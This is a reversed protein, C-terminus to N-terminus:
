GTSNAVDVAREPRRNITVATANRGIFTAVHKMAHNAAERTLSSLTRRADRHNPVAHTQTSMPLAHEARYM